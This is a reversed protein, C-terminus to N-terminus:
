KAECKILCCQRKLQKGFENYLCVEVKQGHLSIEVPFSTM